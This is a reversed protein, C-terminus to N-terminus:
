IRKTTSRNMVFVVAIIAISVIAVLVFLPTGSAEDEYPIIEENREEVTITFDKTFPIGKGKGDTMTATMVITGSTPAYLYNYSDFSVGGYAEKFNWTITKRSANTPSVIGTLKVKEGAVITTPIGTIDTVPVYVVNSLNATYEKIIVREITSQQTIVLTNEGKIIEYHFESEVTIALTHTKAVIKSEVATQSSLGYQAAGGFNENLTSVLDSWDKDDRYSAEAITFDTSLFPTPFYKANYHLLRLGEYNSRLAYLADLNVFNMLINPSYIYSKYTGVDNPDEINYIYLIYNIEIDPLSITKEAGDSNDSSIVMAIMVTLVVASLAITVAAKTRRSYDKM